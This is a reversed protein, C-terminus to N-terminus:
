RVIGDSNAGDLNVAGSQQGTSSSDNADPGGTKIFNKMSDLLYFYLKEPSIVDLEPLKVGLVELCKALELCWHAKKSGWLNKAPLPLKLYRYKILSILAFALAGYDYPEDGFNTILERYVLEEQALELNLDMRYVIESGHTSMFGSLWQLKAGPLTSHFVIRNDLVIAFHSVSEGTLYRIVMSLPLSNKTWVLSIM